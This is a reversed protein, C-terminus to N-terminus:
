ARQGGARTRVRLSRPEGSHVAARLLLPLLASRCQLALPQPQGGQAAGGLLEQWLLGLLLGGGHVCRRQVLGEVGSWGELLAGRGCLGELVGVVLGGVMLEEWAMVVM